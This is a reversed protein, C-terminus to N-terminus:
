GSIKWHGNRQRSLTTPDGGDDLFGDLAGQSSTINASSVSARGATIRVAQVSAHLLAQRHLPSLGASVADMAAACSPRALQRRLRTREAPTALGCFARGHGGALDALAVQVTRKVAAVEAPSPSASGCGAVVVGAALAAVLPLRRAIM